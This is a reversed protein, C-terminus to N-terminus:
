VRNNQQQATGANERIGSACFLIKSRWFPRGIRNKLNEIGIVQMPYFVKKTFNM